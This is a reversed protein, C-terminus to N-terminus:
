APLTAFAQSLDAIIDAPDELGIHLRVLAGGNWGKIGGEPYVMALSEYGGWSAGLGFYKLHDVMRDVDAQRIPKKFAVSLLGNQGACDRKWIEYGPHSPLGPYLVKDVQPQKELWAIVEKAHAVHMPFRASVTRLGRLALYADDPTVTQGLLGADFALQEAIPGKATVSGMMVDSHGAIYKTIAIISIDAGLALPRYLGAAGWTNDAAIVINRGEVLKAIAPLDQMDYIISGPIELYIMRTDPRLRKAIEEHGGPYFECAIGRPELYRVAIARAPGYISESLLVHDGPKLVSLFVHAIASLGTSFLNTRDGQEIETIADELAFTTPTGRSGYSFVRENKERRSRISQMADTDRYLVTSARVVPPNVTGSEETQPARAMHVLRTKDRETM